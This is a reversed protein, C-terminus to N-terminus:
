VKQSFIALFKSKEDPYGWAKEFLDYAVHRAERPPLGPDNLIFGSEDYGIVVVTHGDYGGRGSLVYSNIDCTPVHGAHLAEIIDERTPVRIEAKVLASFEGALRQEQPIDSHSGQWAAVEDGAFERIYEVGDRIFRADDFMRIARVDIGNKVFWILGAYEWTAKGKMKATITDLEDWTFSKTPWFYKMVM